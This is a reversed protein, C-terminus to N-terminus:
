DPNQIMNNISNRPVSEYYEGQRYNGPANLSIGRTTRRVFIMKPEADRLDLIPVLIQHNYSGTFHTHLTRWRKMDWVRLNEFALEVQREQRVNDRTLPINNTHAARKRVDNLAAAAKVADGLGSECVAEAYNLLVEAYRFVIYDLTSKHYEVPTKDSLMKKMLFGSATHGGYLYFGSVNAAEGGLSHYTNGDKGEVTTAAAFVLEGTPKVLGGQIIIKTNRWQTGPAIISAWFRADKAKKSDGYASGDFLAYPTDKDVAIYDDYTSKFGELNFDDNTRTKIKGDSRQGEVDDYTEYADVLELVPSIRGGGKVQAPENYVNLSGGYGSGERGIGKIFIAEETMSNPEKFIKEYNAAAESRNAPNPMYLGHPSNTMIEQSANICEQYFFAADSAKMTALGKDVAEGTLSIKDGFKAVSAAVLAARSKLALAAWKSARRGPKEPLNAAAIDCQTMVYKWTDLETNRPVVLSSTNLPDYAQTKDIIPVGGFKQALYFYVYAKVFAVEGTYAKKEDGSANLTPIIDYFNNIDRITKYAKTFYDGRLLYGPYNEGWQSHVAEDCGQALWFAGINGTPNNFGASGNDNTGPTYLYDEIPLERYVTALYANVGNPDSFLDKLTTKNTPEIDLIGHCAGLSLLCIVLIYVYLRKMVLYKSTSM